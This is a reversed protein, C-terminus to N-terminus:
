RLDLGLRGSWLYWHYWGYHRSCHEQRDSRTPPGWLRSVWVLSQPEMHPESAPSYSPPHAAWPVLSPRMYPAFIQLWRSPVPAEVREKRHQNVPFHSSPRPSSSFATPTISILLLSTTTSGM